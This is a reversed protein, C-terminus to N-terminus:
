PCSVKIVSPLTLRGPDAQFEPAPNYLRITLHIASAGRSSIWNADGTEPAAPGLRARFGGDADRIISSADVSPAEDANRPLYFSEDYATISWWRAPQDAGTIDYACAPDLPAGAEDVSRFFYITESRALALLGVMSVAARTYPDAAPAGTHLNGRWAGVRVEGGAAFHNVAMFASGVGLGLGVALVALGILLAKIM